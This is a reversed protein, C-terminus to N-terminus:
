WPRWLSGGAASAEQQARVFRYAYKVNPPITLVMVWGERVLIENVMRGDPLWVYALLRRAAAAAQRGLAAITAADRGLQRGQRAARADPSTEPADIGILRVRATSAGVRVRVTDGDTWALVVGALTAASATAPAGPPAAM